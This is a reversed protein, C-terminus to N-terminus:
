LLRFAKLKTTRNRDKGTLQVLEIRFRSRRSPQQPRVKIILQRPEEVAEILQYVPRLRRGPIRSTMVLSQEPGLVRSEFEIGAADIRILLAVGPYQYIMYEAPKDPSVEDPPAAFVPAPTFFVRLLVLM